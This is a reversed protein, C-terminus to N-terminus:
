GPPLAARGARRLATLTERVAVRSTATRRAVLHIDRLVPDTLAVARVAYRDDVALLPLLTVSLGAEVHRLMPGFGAFRATVRPHFGARLCWREGLDALHAGPHEFAWAEGALAALDLPGDCLDSRSAPVVLVVPDSALHIRVLGPGTVVPADPFDASVAVDVEGRQVAPVSVVPEAETLELSIRPYEGAVRQVAPLLISHFASTFAAVRVLGTAEDHLHAIEAEVSDMHDLIEAARQALVLGVPTLRIRRGAREFLAARVETELLTLQQSVSSPSQHVAEAVARVTGLLHLQHLLRLRWPNLM